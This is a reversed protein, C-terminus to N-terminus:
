RLNEETENMEELIVVDEEESRGNVVEKGEEDDDSSLDLVVEEDEDSSASLINCEEDNSHESDDSSNGERHRRRVIRKKKKPKEVNPTAEPTGNLTNGLGDEQCHGNEKVNAHVSLEVKEDCTGNVREQPEDACQEKVSPLSLNLVSEQFHEHVQQVLLCFIALLFAVLSSAQASGKSRLNFLCIMVVVVIKLVMDKSLYSPFNERTRSLSSSFYDVDSDLPETFYLCQRFDLLTQHCLDSINVIPKKDFFWVDSLLLFHALFQQVYDQPESLQGEGPAVCHCRWMFSGSFVAKEKPVKLSNREFSRKLNGEAGEFPQSCMLCRMYHFIADLNCNVAMSLTGLQNHPMGIDPNWSLAQHYYRHAMEKTGRCPIDMLYRNLDGLCILCRHVSDRAAELQKSSSSSKHKGYDQDPFVMPFDICGSSLSFETQLSLLLHHYFGVGSQLHLLLQSREELRWQNDKRLRKATSVDEYFGKRWLIEDIKHRQVLSSSYLLREAMEKLKSRLAQAQVTFLDGTIKAHSRLDDLQRTVDMLNRYLRRSLEVSENRPDSIPSLSQNM